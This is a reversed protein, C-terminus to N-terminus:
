NLRLEIYPTVYPYFTPIFVSDLKYLYPDYWWYYFPQSVPTYRKARKYLNETLSDFDSSSSSMSSESSDSDDDLSKKNKKSKKHKKSKVKKGGAQKDDVQTNDFKHNFEDLKLKFATNADEEGIFNYSQLSFKVSNDTRNETVKFHYFKGGGGKQLTFHFKMIKNNFHESLNEYALRAGEVSNKAKFSTNFNDGKITPNVLHYTNTM